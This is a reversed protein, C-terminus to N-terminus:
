HALQQRSWSELAGAGARPRGAVTLEPPEPPGAATVAASPDSEALDTRNLGRVKFQYSVGITLNEVIHSSTSSTSGPIPMWPGWDASGEKQQYEWQPISSDDPNTWTLEIHGVQGAKVAATLNTPKGRRTDSIRTYSNLTATGGAMVHIGGWAEASGAPDDRQFLISDATTWGETSSGTTLTGYVFIEILDDSSDVGDKFFQHRDSGPAFEIITGPNITLTAGPFIVIDGRLSVTDDSASAMENWIEDGIISWHHYSTYPVDAHTVVYEGREEGLIDCGGTNSSTFFRLEKWGKHYPGEPSKNGPCPALQGRSPVKPTGWRVNAGLWSMTDPLGMNAQSPKPEPLLVLDYNEQLSRNSNDIQTRLLLGTHTMNEWKDPLLTKDFIHWSGGTPYAAHSGAGVYIIPHTDQSLKINRQPDFVFSSTLGPMKINEGLHIERTYNNYYSLHANHFFYEVGLVTANSPDSSSVVVNIKQWDGEHNNWWHNYPYFYFYQIVTISDAYANHTTKYIHVYATNDFNDGKYASNTYDGKGFYVSDWM